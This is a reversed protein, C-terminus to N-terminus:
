KARMLMLMVYGRQEKLTPTTKSIISKEKLATLHNLYYPGGSNNYKDGYLARSLVTSFQGRTVITNPEFNTMNIGMIGLQCASKIYFQAEETQEAIDDFTCDLQTNPQKKLVRAAFETIMKALESRIINGEINADKLNSM